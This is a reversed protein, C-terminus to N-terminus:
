EGENLISENGGPKYGYKQLIGKAAPDNVIFSYFLVAKRLMKSGSLVVIGQKIPDYYNEDIEIWSVNSKSGAIAPSYLVSKSTFSIGRAFIAYKASQIINEAVIIRSKISEALGTRELVTLAAKGYPALKPNALSIKQNHNKLISEVGTNKILKYKSLIILKGRAYVVPKKVTYGRKWLVEPYGMDASMFVDYPAGHLIQATLRGSSGTIVELTYMPYMKEFEVKLEKVAYSLNAAAAIRLSRSKRCSVSFLVPVILIVAFNRKM